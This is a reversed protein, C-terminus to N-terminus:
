MAGGTQLDYNGLDAKFVFTSQPSVATKACPTSRENFWLPCGLTKIKNRQTTNYVRQIAVLNPWAAM